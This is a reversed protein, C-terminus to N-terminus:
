DSKVFQDQTAQDSNGQPDSMAMAWWMSDAIPADELIAFAGGIGMAVFLTLIVIYGLGRKSFITRAASGGRTM